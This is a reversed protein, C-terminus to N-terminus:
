KDEQVETDVTNHKEYFNQYQQYYGVMFRGQDELRLSDPFEGNIKGIIEQVLKSYYINEKDSLKKLHNQALIILKPFVLSPKSCASAFYTDKITRNLKTSLTAQQIKELVAFLRGCLYAQNLNNKDLSLKLEEKQNKLRSNRNIYAKIIGMRVRNNPANKGDINIDTKVRRVITSLLYDPYKTGYIISNFVTSFLSPDVEENSSKPSVLERRIQWISITKESNGIKMDNQHVAVNSLIDGFKSKYIFKIAIRATNPKLGVIYFDVNTDINKLLEVNQLASISKGNSVGEMVSKLMEDTDEANLSESNNFMVMSMIDACLENNNKGDAWYLFHLGDIIYHHNKNEILYNFAETYKKMVPVSINSNYAKTNGYSCGATTKHGVLVSGMSYLGKIQNHLEAITEIGGTVACQSKYGNDGGNSQSIFFKDWKELLKEDNHLMTDPSGEVCFAYGSTGYKGVIKLIENDVEDSPSWNEIFARYANVVPTDIGDIFELNRKVFDNHSKIFKDSDAVFEGKKQELGFIYTPRHEAINARIGSFQPLRPMILPRPYKKSKTKGKADKFTEELQFDIISSIKGEPTLSILYNIKVNDYGDKLVKGEQALKDYYSCLASILM